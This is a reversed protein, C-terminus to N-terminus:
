ILRNSDEVRIHFQSGPRQQDQSQERKSRRQIKPSGSDFFLPLVRVSLNFISEDSKIKRYRSGIYSLQYLM